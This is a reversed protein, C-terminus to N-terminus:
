EVQQKGRRRQFAAAFQFPLSFFHKEPVEQWSRNSLTTLRQLRRDRRERQPRRTYHKNKRCRRMVRHWKIQRAASECAATYHDTRTSLWWCQLSELPSPTFSKFHTLATFPMGATHISAPSMIYARACTGRISKGGILMDNLNRFHSEAIARVSAARPM